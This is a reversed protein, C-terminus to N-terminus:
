FGIYLDFSTQVSAVYAQQLLQTPVRIGPPLSLGLAVGSRCDEVSLQGRLSGGPAVAAPKSFGSRDGPIPAAVPDLPCSSARMGTGGEGMLAWFREEKLTPHSPTLALPEGVAPRPWAIRM